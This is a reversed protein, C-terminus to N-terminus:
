EASAIEVLKAGSFQTVVLMGAEDSYSAAYIEGIEPSQLSTIGLNRQNLLVM